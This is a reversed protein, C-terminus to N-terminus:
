QGVELILQEAGAGGCTGAGCSCPAVSLGPPSGGPKWVLLSETTIITNTITITIIIIM